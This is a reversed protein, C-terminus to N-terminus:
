GKNNHDSVEKKLQWVGTRLAEIVRDCEDYDRRVGVTVLFSIANIVYMVYILRHILYSLYISLDTSLVKVVHM